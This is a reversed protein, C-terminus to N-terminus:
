LVYMSLSSASASFWGRSSVLYFSVLPGGLTSDNLRSGDNQRPKSTGPSMTWSGTICCNPTLTRIPAELIGQCSKGALRAPFENILCFPLLHSVYLASIAPTNRSLTRSSRVRSWTNLSVLVYRFRDCRVWKASEMSVLGDNPGFADPYRPDNSYNKIFRHPYSDGMRHAALKASFSASMCSFTLSGHTLSRALVSISSTRPM